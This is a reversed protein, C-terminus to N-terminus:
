RRSRAPRSPRSARKWEEVGQMAISRELTAQALASRLQTVERELARERSSEGGGTVMAEEIASVAADRWGLVTDAHVGYQRALQDASSKGSLLAMVAERRETASRRGPRGRTVGGASKAAKDVEAAVKNDVPKVMTSQQKAM